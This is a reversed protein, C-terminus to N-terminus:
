FGLWIDSQCILIISGQRAMIRIEDLLVDVLNSDRFRPCFLLLRGHIQRKTKNVRWRIGSGRWMRNRSRCFIDRMLAIVKAEM